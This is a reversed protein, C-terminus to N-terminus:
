QPIKRQIFPRLPYLQAIAELDYDTIWEVGKYSMVSEIEDDFQHELGLVHGLEHAAVRRFRRLTTRDELPVGTKSNEKLWIIISSHILKGQFPDGITTTSGSNMIKQSLTTQYNDASYLCHTNLDSFPPYTSLSKTSIKLRDELAGKWMNIGDKYAEEIKASPAGCINFELREKQNWSVKVGPGFVYKYIMDTKSIEKQETKKVFTLALLIKGKDGDEGLALISFAKGTNKLSYHIPKLNHALGNKFQVGSLDLKGNKPQFVLELDGSSSLYLYDDGRQIFRYLNNGAKKTTDEEPAENGSKINNIDQEAILEENETYQTIDVLSYDSYNKLNSETLFSLASSTSGKLLNAPDGKVFITKLPTIEQYVNLAGTKKGCGMLLLTIFLYIIPATKSRMIIQGLHM